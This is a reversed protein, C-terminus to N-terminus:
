SRQVSSPRGHLRGLRLLRQFKPCKFHDPASCVAAHRLGDRMSTLERIRRDLQEAKALLLERDLTSSAFMAAIEELTFGARQGLAILSLRQLVGEPFIRRLGKRGCSQILGKEEYFRLTSAPLGTARSVQGIDL